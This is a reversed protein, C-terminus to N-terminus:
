PQHRIAQLRFSYGLGVYHAPAAPTLGVAYHFDIQQLQQKGLRLTTAFHLLHRSGGREPFDGAYELIADWIPALQRDVLFTAEGTVNHSGKVTPTYVSLMGAATWKSSLGHSWAVQLAPDYSGSSIGGAGTPFTLFVTASIDFGKVPGLQQKVGLALDGFGSPDGATVNYYYDPVSFRLETRSTLGFRILTEPGDVTGQGQSATDLFGNEAQVSGAPVV